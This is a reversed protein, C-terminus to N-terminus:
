PTCVSVASGGEGGMCALVSKAAGGRGMELTRIKHIVGQIIVTKKLLDWQQHYNDFNFDKLEKVAVKKIAKAINFIYM